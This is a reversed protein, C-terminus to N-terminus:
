SLACDTPLGGEVNCQLKLCVRRGFRSLRGSRSLCMQKKKIIRQECLKEWKFGNEKYPRGKWIM